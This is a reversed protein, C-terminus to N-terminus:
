DKPPMTALVGAFTRCREAGRIFPASRASLEAPSAITWGADTIAPDAFYLEGVEHLHEIVERATDHNMPNDDEGEWSAAAKWSGYHTHDYWFGGCDGGHKWGAAHAAEEWPDTVPLIPTTWAVVTPTGAPDINLAILADDDDQEKKRLHLAEADREEETAYPGNISPEVCGFVPILWYKSKLTIPGRDEREAELAAIAAELVTREQERMCERAASAFRDLDSEEFLYLPLTVHRGGSEAVAGPATASNCRRSDIADTVADRARMRWNALFDVTDAGSVSIDTDPDGDFQDAQYAVAENILDILTSLPNSADTPIAPTPEATAPNITGDDNYSPLEDLTPADADFLVYDAGVKRAYQFIAWLDAPYEGEPAHPASPWDTNEDHAYMIWGFQTQGGCPGRTAWDLDILWQGTEPSLHATSLDLFARLPYKLLTM